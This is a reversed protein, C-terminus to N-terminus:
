SPASAGQLVAQATVTYDLFLFLNRLRLPQAQPCIASLWSSSWILCSGDRMLFFLFTEGCRSCYLLCFQQHFHQRHKGRGAKSEQRFFRRGIQPRWESTESKRRKRELSHGMKAPCAHHNDGHWYCPSFHVLFFSCPASSANFRISAQSEEQKVSKKKAAHRSNWFFM